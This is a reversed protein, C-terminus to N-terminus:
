GIGKKNKMILGFLSEKEMEKITKLNVKM